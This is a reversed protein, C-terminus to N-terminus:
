KVLYVVTITSTTGLVLGVPFWFYASKYWASENALEKQMRVNETILFQKTELLTTNASLLTIVQADKVELLDSLKSIKLNLKPINIRYQLLTQADAPRFGVYVKEDLTFKQIDLTPLDGAYAPLACVLFLM